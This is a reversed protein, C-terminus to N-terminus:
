RIWVYSRSEPALLFPLPLLRLLVDWGSGNLAVGIVGIAVVLLMLTWGIRSGRLAAVVVLATLLFAGIFTSAAADGHDFIAPVWLGALFLTGAVKLAPPSESVGTM